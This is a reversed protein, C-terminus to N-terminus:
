ARILLPALAQLPRFGVSISGLAEEPVLFFGIFLLALM